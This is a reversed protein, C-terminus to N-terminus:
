AVVIKGQMWPHMGCIYYLTTGAPASVPVTVSAHGPPAGKSKSEFISLSDGPADLGPKGVNVIWHVIPNHPGAPETPDGVHDARIRKCVKCKEMQETTRPVDSEKILSLSHPDNDDPAAFEFTLDCGAKITVTGPVFRMADLFYQNVVYKAHDKVKVTVGCAKVGAHAEAAVVSPAALAALALLGGALAAPRARSPKTGHSRV